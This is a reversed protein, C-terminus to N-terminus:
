KHPHESPAPKKNKGTKSPSPSASARAEKAKREREIEEAVTYATKKSDHARTLTTMQTKVSQTGVIAALLPLEPNDEYGALIGNLQTGKELPDKLDLGQAGTIRNTAADLQAPLTCEISRSYLGAQKQDAENQAQSVQNYHLTSDERTAVGYGARAVEANVLKGNSLTVGAKVPAPSETTESDTPHSPEGTGLAEDYTLQVPAGPPLMRALHDTAEGALCRMDTNDHNNQPTTVNMLDITVSTGDRDVVITDADKVSIIRASTLDGKPSAATSTTETPTAQNSTSSSCGTLALLGTVLTTTLTTYRNPRM